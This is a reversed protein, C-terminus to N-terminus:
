KNKPPSPNAEGLSKTLTFNLKKNPVIDSGCIDYYVFGDGGKVKPVFVILKQTTDKKIAKVVSKLKAVVTNGFYVQGSPPPTPGVGANLLIIDPNALAFHRKWFGKKYKWGNMTIMGSADVTYAFVVKGKKLVLDEIKIYLYNPSSAIVKKEGEIVQAANKNIFAFFIFATTFFYKKKLFFNM